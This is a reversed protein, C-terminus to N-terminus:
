LGIAERGIETLAARMALGADAAMDPARGKKENGLQLRATVFMTTAAWVQAQLPNNRDLIPAQGGEDVGLLRITVMRLAEEVYRVNDVHVRTLHTQTLEKGEVNTQLPNCVDRIVAEHNRILRLAAASRHMLEHGGAVGRGGPCEKGPLMDGMAAWLHEVSAMYAEFGTGTPPMRTEDGTSLTCVGRLRAFERATEQSVM